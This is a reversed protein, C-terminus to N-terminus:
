FSLFIKEVFCLLPQNTAVSNIKSELLVQVNAKSTITGYSNELPPFSEFNFNELAFASFQTNYKALYDEKQNSMKFVFDEKEKSFLAITTSFYTQSLLDTWSPSILVQFRIHFLSIVFSLPFLFSSVRPIPLSFPFPLLSVLQSIQLCM